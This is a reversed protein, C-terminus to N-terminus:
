RNEVEVHKVVHAMSPGNAGNV